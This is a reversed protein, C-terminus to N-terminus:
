TDLMRSLLRALQKAEEPSLRALVPNDERLRGRLQSRLRRGQATTAIARVRRDGPPTVREVLGRQELGDVLGTLNSKDCHLRRALDGMPAAVTDELHDLLMAQMATLDLEAAAAHTDRGLAQLVTWLQDFLHDDAPM